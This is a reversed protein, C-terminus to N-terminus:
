RRSDAVVRNAIWALGEPDGLAEIVMAPDHDIVTLLIRASADPSRAGREWDRITGLPISFYRAFQQQTLGLRGRIDRPNPARRFQRLEEDTLLPNEPDSNANAEIEEETMAELRNFDTRDEAPRTTGDPLVEVVSGDPNRRSINTHNENPLL